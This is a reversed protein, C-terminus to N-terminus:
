FFLHLQSIPPMKFLITYVKQVEPYSFGRKDLHMRSTYRHGEMKKETIVVIDLLFLLTSLYFQTLINRIEWSYFYIGDASSGWIGSAIYWTNESPFAGYRAFAPPVQTSLAWTAGADKSYAVGSVEDPKSGDDKSVVWNGVLGIYEKSPGWTNASQSVGNVGTAATYTEGNDTSLFVKWISTAVTNGSPTVASDLLMGTQVAKKTWKGSSLREIVAGVGNQSAAASAVDDSGAGVGAVISASTQSNLTWEKASAATLLSLVVVSSRVSM